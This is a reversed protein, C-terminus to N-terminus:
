TKIKYRANPEVKYDIHSNEVSIRFISGADTPPCLHSHLKMLERKQQRLRGFEKFVQALTLEDGSMTDRGM